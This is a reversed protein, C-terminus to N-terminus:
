VGVGAISRRRLMEGRQREQNKKGLGLGRLTRGQRKQKEEEERRWGQAGGTTSMWWPVMMVCCLVCVRREREREWEEPM